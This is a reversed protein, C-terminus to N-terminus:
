TKKAHKQLESQKLQAEASIAAKIEPDDLLDLILRTRIDEMVQEPVAIDGVQIMKPAEVPPRASMEEGPGVVVEETTQVLATDEQSAHPIVLQQQQQQSVASTATQPGGGGGRGRGRGRTSSSAQGRGGRGRGRRSVPPPPPKMVSSPPPFIQHEPVTPLRKLIGNNASPAPPPGMLPRVTVNPPAASAAPQDFESFDMNDTAPAASALQQLLSNAPSGLPSITLGATPNPPSFALQTQNLDHQQQQQEQMSQLNVLTEAADLLRFDADLSPDVSHGGAVSSNNIEFSPPVNLDLTTNSSSALAPNNGGAAAGTKNATNSM